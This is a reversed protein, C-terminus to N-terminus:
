PLAAIAAQVDALVATWFAKPSATTYIPQGTENLEITNMPTSIYRGNSSVQVRSASRSSSVRVTMKAVTAVLAVGETALTAPHQTRVHMPVHPCM